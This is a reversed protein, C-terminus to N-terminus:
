LSLNVKVKCASERKDNLKCAFITYKWFYWPLHPLLCRSLQSSIEIVEEGGEGSSPFLDLKRFTTNKPIGSSPFLGSFNQSNQVVYVMTLIRLRTEYTLERLKITTM